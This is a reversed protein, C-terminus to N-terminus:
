LASTGLSVEPPCPHWKHGAQVQVYLWQGSGESLSLIPPVNKRHKTIQGAGARNALSYRTPSVKFQTVVPLDSTKMHLVIGNNKKEPVKKFQSRCWHSILIKKNSQWHPM